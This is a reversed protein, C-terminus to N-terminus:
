RRRGCRDRGVEPLREFRVVGEFDDVLDQEVSHFGDTFQESRSLHLEREHQLGGFGHFRRHGQELRV